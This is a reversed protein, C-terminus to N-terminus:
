LISLSETNSSLDKPICKNILRLGVGPCDANWRLEMRIFNGEQYNTYQVFSEETFPLECNKCGGQKCYDCIKQDNVLRLTYCNKNAQYFDLIKAFAPFDDYYKQLYNFIHLHVDGMSYSSNFFVLRNFSLNGANKKTIKMDVMVRENEPIHSPVEFMFVNEKIIDICKHNVTVVQQIQANSVFAMMTKSKSM